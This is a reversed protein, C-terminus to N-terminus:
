NILPTVVLRADSKKKLFGNQQQSEQDTTTLSLQKNKLKQTQKEKM